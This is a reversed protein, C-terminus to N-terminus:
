FAHVPAKAVHGLFPEFLQNVLRPVCDRRAKAVAEFINGNEHLVFRRALLEFVASDAGSVGQKAEVLPNRQIASAVAVGHGQGVADRKKLTRDQPRCAARVFNPSEDEVGEPVFQGMVQAHGFVFDAFGFRAALAADGLEGGLLREPGIPSSESWSAFSNASRFNM